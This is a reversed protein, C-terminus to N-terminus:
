QKGTVIGARDKTVIIQYGDKNEMFDEIIIFEEEEVENSVCYYPLITYGLGEKVLNKM